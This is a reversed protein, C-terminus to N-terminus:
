KLSCLFYKRVFFLKVEYFSTSNKLSKLLILNRLFDFFMNSFIKFFTNGSEHGFKLYFFM